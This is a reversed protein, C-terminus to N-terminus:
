VVTPSTFCMSRKEQSERLTIRRPSAVGASQEEARQPHAPIYQEHDKGCWM